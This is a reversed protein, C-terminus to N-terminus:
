SKKRTLMLCGASCLVALLVYGFISASGTQPPSALPIFEVEVTHNAIVDEFTYSELAGMSVGDIKVDKVTYGEDPVFTIMHSDQGEIAYTPSSPATSGGESTTIKIEYYTYIVEEQAGITARATVVGSSHTVIVDLQYANDSVIADYSDLTLTRVVQGTTGSATYSEAASAIQREQTVNIFKYEINYTEGDVLSSFDITATVNTGSAELAVSAGVSAVGGNFILTASKITVAWGSKYLIVGSVTTGMDMELTYNGELLFATPVDLVTTNDEGNMGTLRGILVTDGEANKIRIRDTEDPADVDNAVVVLQASSIPLHSNDISFGAIPQWNEAGGENYGADSNIIVISSGAAMACTLPLALTALFIAALLAISRSIPNKLKM